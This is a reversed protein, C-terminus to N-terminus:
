SFRGPPYTDTNDTMAPQSNPEVKKPSPESPFVITFTTGVDEQSEVKITGGHANVIGYVISLGLGTGQGLPKTTFFPDFINELQHTPIGKGNDKVQLIHQKDQEHYATSIIIEGGSPMADRANSLLNILVQTIKNRDCILPPMLPSLLTVISINAWSKLQHEILLLTDSVIENLNHRRMEDVTPRAYTLLSRVIEAVRWGNRNITELDQIFKAKDFNDKSLRRILSESLGTIVQLPSNIEHAVGAALTGLSALKQAERLAKEGQKREIAYILSRCLSKSDIEGKILYDQAGNQMAQFIVKENALGSLVVIPLDPYEKHLRTFSDLGLVDPLTLDLLVVDYEEAEMSDLAESLKRKWHIQFRAREYERVMLQILEADEKDDEILLLNITPIDFPMIM